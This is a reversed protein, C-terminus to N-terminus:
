SHHQKKGRKTPPAAKGGDKTAHHQKGETRQQTATPVLRSLTRPASRSTYALKAENRTQTCDAGAQQAHPSWISIDLDTGPILGLVEMEATYDCSQAAAHVLSTVANHGRTAEGVACCTALAAGTDLSGNQCAACPVPEWPGACGLRLRVSDVSEAPEMVAGHHPNLRWMLTHDIEADGLEQLRARPGWSGEQEQMQLLGLHVSTDVCTTILAQIKLRKRALSHEDNGDGGDATIGRAHRLSPTPQDQM